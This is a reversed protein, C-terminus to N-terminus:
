SLKSLFEKTNKISQSESNLSKNILYVVVLALAQTCLKQLEPGEAKAFFQVLNDVVDGEYVLNALTTQFSSHLTECYNSKLITELIVFISVNIEEEKILNSEIIKICVDIYKKFFETDIEKKEWLITFDM